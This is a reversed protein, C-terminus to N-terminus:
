QQSYFSSRARFAFIRGTHTDLAILAGNVDPFQRLSYLSLEGYEISDEKESKDEIYIIDGIDLVDRPHKVPPGLYQNRRWKRAWKLDKLNIRGYDDNNLFINAGLDDIHMVVGVKWNPFAEPIAINAIDSNLNTDNINVNDLISKDM